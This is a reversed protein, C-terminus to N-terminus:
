GNPSGEAPPPILLYVHCFDFIAVPAIEEHQGSIRECDDAARRHDPWEDVLHVGVSARKRQSRGLDIQRGDVPVEERDGPQAYWAKLSAHLPGENMTAITHRPPSQSRPVISRTVGVEDRIIM